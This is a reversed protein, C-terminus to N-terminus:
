EVTLKPILGTFKSRHEADIAEVVPPGLDATEDASFIM